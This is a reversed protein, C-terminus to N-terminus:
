ITLTDAISMLERNVESPFENTQVINEIQGALEKLKDKDTPFLKNLESQLDKAEKESLFVRAPQYDCKFNITVDVLEGIGTQIDITKKEM